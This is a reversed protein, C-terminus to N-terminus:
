LRRGMGHRVDWAESGGARGIRAVPGQRWSLSSFVNARRRKISAVAGASGAVGAASSGGLEGSEGLEGLEGVVGVCFLLLAEDELSVRGRVASRTSDRLDCSKALGVSFTIRLKEEVLVDALGRGDLSPVGGGRGGLGRSGERTERGDVDCEMACEIAGELGWSSELAVVCSDKAFECAHPASNGTSSEDAERAM